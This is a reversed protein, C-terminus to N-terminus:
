RNTEERAAAEFADLVSDWYMDVWTRLTGIGSRDLSYVRRTGHREATVLGADALVQLHQSIAPRSVPLKQALEGVAQPQQKIIEFIAQRTPDALA